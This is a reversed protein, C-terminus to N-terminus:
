CEIGYKEFNRFILSLKIHVKGMARTSLKYRDFGSYVSDSNRLSPTGGVFFTQLEEQTSGVPRWTMCELKHEGPSTPIHIFGYGYLESRGHADQHWVQLHLRPWGQIGKTAYHIDIPHCWSTMDDSLPSDVHTQGEKIGEVLKWAGGTVVGWKCYLTSSPFESAGVVQGIVHVEAM